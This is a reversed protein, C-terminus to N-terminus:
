LQETERQVQGSPESLHEQEYIERETLKDLSPRAADAVVRRCGEESMTALETRSVPLHDTRIFVSISPLDRRAFERTVRFGDRQTQQQVVDRYESRTVPAGDYAAERHFDVIKSRSRELAELQAVCIAALKVLSDRTTDFTPESVDRALSMEYTQRRSAWDFETLADDQELSYKESQRGRESGIWTLILALERRMPWMVAAGSTTSARPPDETEEGSGTAVDSYEGAPDRLINSRGLPAEGPPYIDGKENIEVTQEGEGAFARDAQDLTAPRDNPDGVLPDPKNVATETQSEQV